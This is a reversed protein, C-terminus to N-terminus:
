FKGSSGFCGVGRETEKNIVKVKLLEIDLIKSFVLQAAKQGQRIIEDKNSLNTIVIQVEGRYGSDITGFHVLVGQSSVSSKPRVQVEIDKELELFLSTPISKVEFPRLKFPLVARLDYGSDTLHGKVLDYDCKYNIM